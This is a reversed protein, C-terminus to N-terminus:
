KKMFNTPSPDVVQSGSATVEIVALGREIEGDEKLRFVGDLGTFGSPNTLNERDMTKGGRVLVAALATADYALTALRPPDKDYTDRYAKTFKARTGPDPAAYWGGVLLSQGQALDPEDWLGTGLLRMQGPELGAVALQSVLRHLDVGGFPLFLAEIMDKKAAVQGTAGNEGVFIVEGGGKKVSSEFAQQVLKGYPGSPILAAFRRIGQKLAYAVVREVQPAPAFGLVYLGPQALSIDTTLTLASIRAEEAVPKVAAVETAFLPGVILSAGSTIADKAATVAGGPTGSTDRPMLEFGDGGIDFVALQAANLMDQGLSASKGSLPALFAVKVANPRASNQAMREAMQQPTPYAGLNPQAQPSPPAMKRQAVADPTTLSGAGGGWLGSSCGGLLLASLLVCSVSFRLSAAKSRFFSLNM